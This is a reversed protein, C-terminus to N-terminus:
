KLEFSLAVTDAFLTNRENMIQIEKEISFEEEGSSLEIRAIHFSSASLEYFKSVLAGWM